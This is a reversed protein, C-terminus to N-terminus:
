LLSGERIAALDEPPPPVARQAVRELYVGLAIYVVWFVFSGVAFTLRQDQTMHSQRVFSEIIGAAVFMPVVGMALLIAERGAARLSAMRSLHGPRLLSMGLMLGAGGCLIIAGIETIGHPLIWAWYEGYIGVRHHTATFSGLMAGNQLMMIVTPVGGLIGATFAIFGVKTNHSFLFSAFAFKTGSVQDRGDRLVVELQEPLAGPLRIDGPMVLAYAAPWSDFSAYYGAFASVFFLMLSAFHYRGTRAICRGFGTVFFDAVARLPHGSPAIYVFSHARAVLRDANRVVTANPSRGRIQALHITSLRYLRDLRALEEGSLGRVGVKKAYKLMAELELWVAQARDMYSQKVPVSGPPSSMTM